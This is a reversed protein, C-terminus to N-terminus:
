ETTPQFKSIDVEYRYSIPCESPPSPERVLVLYAVPKKFQELAGIFTLEAISLLYDVIQKMEDSINTYEGDGCEWSPVRIQGNPMVEFNRIAGQQKSHEIHNRLSVIHRITPAQEAIFETLRSGKPLATALTKALFDFNSDEKLPIFKGPLLCLLRVVKNANILFTNTDVILDSVQPLRIGRGNNDREIKNGVIQEVIATVSASVKKEIAQCALLQEKCEHMLLLITGKNAPEPLSISKLLEDSQIVLRAIIPNASGANLNVTTTWPAFPNTRGPDISEPSRLQTTADIKYLEMFEGFSCMRTIAGTGEKFEFSGPGDRYPMAVKPKEVKQAM